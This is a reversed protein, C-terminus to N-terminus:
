PQGRTLDLIEDRSEEPTRGATYVTHTALLPNAAHRVFYENWNFGQGFSGTLDATRRDLIRVSEAPDPSPLLQVVHRFPALALRLRAFALPSETVTAGAGFDIVCERHETLLREVAHTDFQRWYFVLAVFGGTRRIERALGEDYGAERYYAWRADDYAVQACGLRQALLRGVTSKGTRVPGILLIEDRAEERNAM